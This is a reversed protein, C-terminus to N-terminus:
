IRGEISNRTSCTAVMFGDDHVQGDNRLMGLLDLREVHFYGSLLERFASETYEREHYESLLDAGLYTPTGVVITTNPDALELIKECLEGPDPLHEVVDMSYIVDFVKTAGLRALSLSSITMRHVDVAGANRCSLERKACAIAARDADIGTVHACRKSVFYAYAADGCGIDLVRDTPRVLDAVYEVKLRYDNNTDILQWHYAGHREYKDFGVFNNSRDPPTSRTRMLRRVRGAAGAAIRRM